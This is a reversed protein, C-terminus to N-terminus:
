NEIKVSFSVSRFSHLFRDVLTTLSHLLLGVLVQSATKDLHTGSRGSELFFECLSEFCSGRSLQKVEDRMCHDTGIELFDM